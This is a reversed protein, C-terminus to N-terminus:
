GEQAANKIATQIADVVSPRLESLVSRLFSREPFTAKHARVTTTKGSKTRREHAPIEFTGGYEHIRGYFVKTGVRGVIDDGRDEVTANISSALVGTRRHLPDGSLKETVVARQIRFMQVMMADHLAQRLSPGLRELRAIVVSDGTVTGEIM